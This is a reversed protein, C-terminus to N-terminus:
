FREWLGTNQSRFDPIGSPTSIGAGTFVVAHQAKRLLDAAKQISEEVASSM